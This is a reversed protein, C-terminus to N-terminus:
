RCGAAHALIASQLVASNRMSTKAIGCHQESTVNKCAPMAVRLHDVVQQRLLRPRLHLQLLGGGAEVDRAEGCDTRWRWRVGYM